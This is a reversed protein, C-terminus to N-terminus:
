KIHLQKLIQAFLRSTFNSGQDSQVIRPIGFVSIFQSMAKVVSKATISRLPYAAPYRTSQCMVTLLYSCGSKSRPLPGVCDILHEFPESLAPIPYLPAPKITQNPKGTVQCIHCTKIFASVDRKMHPWFFISFCGIMYTKKVGMHGAVNDHATQISATRFKLLCCLKCLLIAVSHRVM